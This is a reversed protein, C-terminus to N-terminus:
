VKRNDWSDIREPEVEIFARKEKRREEVWKRPM